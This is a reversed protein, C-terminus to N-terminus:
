LSEQSQQVSSVGSMNEDVGKNPLVTLVLVTMDDLAPSDGRHDVAKNIVEKAVVGAKISSPNKVISTIAGRGLIVQDANFTEGIGDSLLVVLDNPYLTFEIDEFEAQNDVGLITGSSNLDQFSGNSHRLYGLEHGASAYVMRTGDRSIRMLVMSAFDEPLSTKCFRQNIWGLMASPSPDNLDVTLLLAKLVASGMAAHIGHGVVDAVCLLTDGNPCELVDVFDGAIEDAPHFEIAIEIRDKRIQTPLLYSQLRRARDIQADRDRNRRALEQSMLSVEDALQTLEFNTHVGVTTGLKGRGVERVAHVTRELPRTVLRILLLNLILAGFITVGALVGLGALSERRVKTILPERREGVRVLVGDTNSSGSVLESWPSSHDHLHETAESVFKKGDVVVEITHGPSDGANMTACITNIHRQVADSGVKNLEQIAAQITRAEDGLSIIKEYLQSQVSRQFDIYLYGPLLITVFLNVTVLLQTRLHARQFCLWVRQAVRQVM